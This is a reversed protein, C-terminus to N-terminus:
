RRKKLFAGILAGLTTLAGLKIKNKILNIDKATDEINDVLYKISKLAEALRYMAYSTFAVLVIFGIALSYYLFEQSNM